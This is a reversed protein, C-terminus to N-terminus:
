TPMVPNRMARYQPVPSALASHKGSLITHMPQNVVMAKLINTVRDRSLSLDLLPPPLLFYRQNM